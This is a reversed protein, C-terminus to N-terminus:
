QIQPELELQKVELKHIISHTVKKTLMQKSFQTLMEVPLVTFVDIIENSVWETNDQTPVVFTASVVLGEIGEEMGFLVSVCTANSANNKTFSETLQQTFEVINNM